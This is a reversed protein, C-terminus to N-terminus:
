CLTIADIDIHCEDTHRFLPTRTIDQLPMLADAAHRAPAHRCPMMMILLMTYRLM